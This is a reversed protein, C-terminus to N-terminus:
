SDQKPPADNSESYILYLYSQQRYESSPTGISTPLPDPLWIDRATNMKTRLVRVANTYVQNSNAAASYGRSGFHIPYTLLSPVYASAGQMNADHTNTQTGRDYLRVVDLYM